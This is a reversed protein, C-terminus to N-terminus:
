WDEFGISVFRAAQKIQEKAQAKKKRVRVPRSKRKQSKITKIVM